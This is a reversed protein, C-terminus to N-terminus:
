WSIGTSNWKELRSRLDNLDTPYVVLWKGGSKEIKEGEMKQLATVKGTAAKTEIGVFRGRVCVLFDPVGAKGFLQGMPMCYWIGLEKLMAKVEAKVKGEPTM